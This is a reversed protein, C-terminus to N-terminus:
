PGLILILRCRQLDTVRLDPRGAEACARSFMPYLTSPSLHRDCDRVSPFLLSERGQAVHRRLHADLEALLAAPIAIDRIGETSNPTTVQFRGRVLAVARRVRVVKQALDVDKRRLEVLESLPMALWATMPVLAQYAPPMAAAITEIEASTVPRFEFSTRSTSVGPIQCPNAGILGDALADRMVSRLLSYAHARVTPPGTWGEYWERVDNEDIAAIDVGAFAPLLHATLLRRYHDRTRASVNRSTLWREAYAGFSTPHDAM